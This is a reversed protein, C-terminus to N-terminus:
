TILLERELSSIYRYIFRQDNASLDVFALGIREKVIGNYMKLRSISRIRLSPTIEGLKPFSIKCCEFFADAILAPHLPEPMVAGIGGLSVDINILEIAEKQEAGIDGHHFISCTIPNLIPTPLRFFERRQLRMLNKPLPTRMMMGHRGEILSLEASVWAVRVGDNKTFVIHGSLAIEKNFRHDIGIDLYVFGNQVDVTMIKSVFFYEGYNFAVEIASKKKELDMLIQAIEKPNNVLCQTDDPFGPLGTM